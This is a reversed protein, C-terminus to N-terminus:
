SNEAEYSEIEKRHMYRASLPWILAKGERYRITFIVFLARGAPTRGVALLREERISHKLDPAVRPNDLLFTEIEAITVGHKQCRTRNSADWDFGDTVLAM